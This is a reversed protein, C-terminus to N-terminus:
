HRRSYRSSGDLIEQKWRYIDQAVDAFSSLDGMRGKAALRDMKQIIKGCDRSVKRSEGVRQLWRILEGLPLDEPARLERATERITTEVYRTIMLREHGAFEMLQAVNDVLEAKGAVLAPPPIEPAGFRGVSAWLLLAAGAIIQLSILSYPFTFLVKAISATQSEFGHVTEDFIVPGSGGRLTEILKVGFALGKGDASLAHNAIIDPDSLVWILQNGKRMEGLLIGGEAAILPHLEDSKILQVGGAIEPQVGIENVSWVGVKEVRAIQAIESVLQLTRKAVFSPKVSADRIWGQREGGPVGYWKPLILLIKEAGPLIPIITKPLLELQPEAIILVGDNVKSVSSHRSKIVPVNLEKLLEAIGAYGLASVSYSSPGTRDGGYDNRSMLYLSLLFAGIAAAVLILLLRLSFVPAQTM